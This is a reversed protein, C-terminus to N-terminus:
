RHRDQIRLYLGGYACNNIDIGFFAHTLVDIHYYHKILDKLKFGIRTLKGERRVTNNVGPLLTKMNLTKKDFYINLDDYVCWKVLVM